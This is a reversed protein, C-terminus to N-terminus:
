VSEGCLQPKFHTTFIVKVAINNNANETTFNKYFVIRLRWVKDQSKQKKVNKTQKSM